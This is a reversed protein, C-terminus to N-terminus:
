KKKEVLSEIIRCTKKLTKFGTSFYKSFFSYIVLESEPLTVGDFKFAKKNFKIYNDCPLPIEINNPKKNKYKQAVKTYFDIEEKIFPRLELPESKSVNKAKFKESIKLSINKQAMKKPEFNNKYKNELENIHKLSYSNSSEVKYLNNNNYKIFHEKYEVTHFNKFDQGEWLLFNQEDKKIINVLNGLVTTLKPMQLYYGYLKDKEAFNSLIEFTDVLNEFFGGEKLCIILYPLDNLGYFLKLCYIIVGLVFNEYSYQHGIHKKIGIELSSYLKFCITSFYDPLGLRGECITRFMFSIKPLTFSSYNKELLKILKDKSIYKLLKLERKDFLYNLEFNKYFSILDRFLMLSGPTSNLVKDFMALFYNGNLNSKTDDYHRETYLNVYDLEKAIFLQHIIDEYSVDDKIGVNFARCIQILTKLSIGENNFDLHINHENLLTDQLGRLLTVVQDYEEIFKRMKDKNKITSRRYDDISSINKSKLKRQKLEERLHRKKAKGGSNHNYNSVQFREDETNRRSRVKYTNRWTPKKLGVQNQYETILFEEWAKKSNAFLKTIREDNKFEEFFTNFDTEAFEERKYYFIIGKFLKIFIDQHESLTESLSKKSSLLKSSRKNDNYVSNNCTTMTTTYDPTDIAHYGEDMDDDDEGSKRKFHGRMNLEGWDVQLGFRISSMVGCAMCVYFGSDHEMYEDSSCNECNIGLTTTQELM